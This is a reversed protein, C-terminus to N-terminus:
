EKSASDKTEAFPMDWPLMVMRAMKRQLSSESHDDGHKWERLLAKAGAKDIGLIHRLQGMTICEKEYVYRALLDLPVEQLKELPIDIGKASLYSQLQEYKNSDDATGTGSQESVGAAPAGSALYSARGQTIDQRVPSFLDMATCGEPGVQAGHPKSSPIVFMEGEHLTVEVDPPFTLTVSGRQVLTVQESVHDHVPIIANPALEWRTVMINEGWFAKRVVNPNIREEEIMSWAIKNLQLEGLIPYACERPFISKVAEAKYRPSLNAIPTSIAVRGESINPKLTRGACRLGL